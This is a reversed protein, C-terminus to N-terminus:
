DPAGLRKTREEAVRRVGADPHKALADDGPQASTRARAAVVVERAKKSSSCTRCIAGVAVVFEPDRPYSSVILIATVHRSLPLL